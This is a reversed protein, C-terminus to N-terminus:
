RVSRAGGRPPARLRRSPGAARPRAPAVHAAPAELANGPAAAMTVRASEHPPPPGNENVMFLGGRGTQDYGVVWARCNPRLVRRWIPWGASVAVVGFFSFSRRWFFRYCLSLPTQMM